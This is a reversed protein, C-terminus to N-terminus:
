LGARLAVGFERDEDDHGQAYHGDLWLGPRVAVSLGAAAVPRRRGDLSWRIGSRAQLRASLRVEGGLALLRRLDGRLDVTNLDVDLALTLGSVPLFALGIRSQRIPRMASDDSEGFSPSRLNKTTWGVRLQNLDLLAGLDLDFATETRSPIDSAGQLVDAITAGSPIARYATGRELKLTSGVVVHPLVSQLLTAGYQRTKLVDVGLRGSTDTTLRSSSFSGFSLGVPWTGLSTLTSSQRLAGAAPAAQQDGSQFRALGATVGAPGGSALGAPNWYVATADDAVAVFAGGMGLAREGTLEFAQQAIAPTAGAVLV